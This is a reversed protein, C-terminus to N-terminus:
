KDQYRRLIAKVRAVLEKYGFPKKLYFDAGAEVAKAWQKGTSDKGLLIIPIGFNSRLQACAGIGDRSPLVEDTIIIDLKFEGLKLYLKLTTLCM